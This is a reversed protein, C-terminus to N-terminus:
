TRDLVWDLLGLKAALEGVERAGYIQYEFDDYKQQYELTLSEYTASDDNLFYMYMAGPNDLNMQAFTNLYKRAEIPTTRSKAQAYYYRGTLPHSGAYDIDKITGGVSSERLLGSRQM